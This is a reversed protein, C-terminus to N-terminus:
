FKRFTGLFRFVEWIHFDNYSQGFFSFKGKLATIFRNFDFLLLLKSSQFKMRYVDEEVAAFRKKWSGVYGVM